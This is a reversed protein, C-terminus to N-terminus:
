PTSPPLTTFYAPIIFGFIGGGLLCLAGGLLALLVFGYRSEKKVSLIAISLAASGLGVIAAGIEKGKTLTDSFGQPITNTAIGIIASVIAGILVFLILYALYFGLAEKKNRQYGFNTLHKFM